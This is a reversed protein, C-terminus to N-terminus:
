NRWATPLPQIYDTMQRLRPELRMGYGTEPHGWYDLQYQFDVNTHEFYDELALIDELSPVPHQDVLIRIYLDDLQPFVTYAALDGLDLLIDSTWTLLVELCLHLTSPSGSLKASKSLEPSYWQRMTSTTTYSLSTTDLALAFM